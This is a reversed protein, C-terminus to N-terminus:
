AIKRENTANKEVEEEEEDINKNKWLEDDAFFRTQQAWLLDYKCAWM